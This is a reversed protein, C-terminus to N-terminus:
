RNGNAHFEIRVIGQKDLILSANVERREELTAALVRIPM